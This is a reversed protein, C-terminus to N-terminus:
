TIYKKKDKIHQKSNSKSILFVTAIFIESYFRKLIRVFEFYYTNDM